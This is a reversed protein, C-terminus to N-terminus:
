RYGARDMLRIADAQLEGAKTLNLENQKFTGWAIVEPAPKAEDTVPYEMNGQALMAQAKPGAMWEMLRLANAENKPHATLAAGSINIHVGSGKQDPWFVALPLDPNKKLLRGLYYTNVIGVSGAGEALAELLKTDSSYVPQALNAVWGEVIQQAKEAGHEAILMAVLSQNYVKKSTRLLLQNKWKPDALDAYGALQEPKIKNTNYVITRARISFGFWTHDPDRLHAPIKADLLESQIPKIVKMNKAQWLNGADVTMFIDAQGRRGEAKLRQLLPGAKDTHTVVEVGTEQQFAEFIPKILHENRSSYVVVQEGAQLVAFFPALCLLGALLFARSRRPFFQNVFLGRNM